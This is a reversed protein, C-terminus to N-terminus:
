IVVWESTGDSVFTINERNIDITFSSSGDITDGASGTITINNELAAGATGTASKVHVVKGSNGSAVPLTITIASGTANVRVVEGVAATYNTTKLSTVTWTPTAGASPTTWEPEKDPGQSTLVQGSTGENIGAGIGWGGLHTIRFRNISTNIVSNSVSGTPSTQVQFYGGGALGTGEGVQFILNSGSIDTGSGQTTHVTVDVPSASSIGEGIYADDVGYTESGFVLQRDTTSIASRGIVISRFAGASSNHGISIGGAGTATASYGLAIAGQGGASAARGIATASSGAASAAEGLATTYISGAIAGQGLATAGAGGNAVAQSGVATSDTQDATTSHGLATSAIGTAKANFGVALSDTGLAQAQSGVAINGQDVEARAIRGIAITDTVSGSAANGIVIADSGITGHSGVGLITASSSVMVVSGSISTAGVYFLSGDYTLSSEADLETTTTAITVLRNEAANNIATVAGSGAAGVIFSGQRTLTQGDSIDGFILQTGSGTQTTIAAVSPNPYSGTLDGTASGKPVAQANSTAIWANSATSYTQLDGDVATSRSIQKLAISGAM